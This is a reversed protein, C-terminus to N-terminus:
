QYLKPKSKQIENIISGLDNGILQVTGASVGGNKLALQADAVFRQSQAPTLFASNVVINIDRSLRTMYTPSLPKEALAASLHEALKALTAKSPKYSGKMLLSLDDQIRSKQEPTVTAGTKFIALDNQLREVLAQQAPSIGPQPGSPSPASVGPAPSSPAPAIGQQQNNIDRQQKAKEKVLEASAMAINAILMTALITTITRKM